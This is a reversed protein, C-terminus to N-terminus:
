VVTNQGAVWQDDNEKGADKQEANAQDDNAQEDNVQQVNQSGSLRKAGFNKVLKGYRVVYSYNYNGSNDKDNKKLEELQKNKNNREERLAKAQLREALTLDPNVYVKALPSDKPENRLKKADKLMKNRDEQNKFEIIVPNGAVSTNDRSKIQHKKKVKKEDIGLHKLLTDSKSVESLGFVIVNKEREKRQSLNAVVENIVGYNSSKNTRMVLSKNVNEDGNERVVTSDRLKAIEDNKEDLEKNLSSIIEKMRLLEGGMATVKTLLLCVANSVLHLDAENAKTQNGQKKAPRTVKTDEEIRILLNELDTM